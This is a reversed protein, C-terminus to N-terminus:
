VETILFRGPASPPTRVAVSIGLCRRTASGCATNQIGDLNKELADLGVATNNSGDTNQFLAFAGAATNGTGTMNAKLTDKGFASNGQGSTLDLLADAGGPQRSALMPRM